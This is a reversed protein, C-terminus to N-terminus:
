CEKLHWGRHGRVHGVRRWRQAGVQEPLEAGRSQRHAVIRGSRHLQIAPYYIWISTRMEEAATGGEPVQHPGVRLLRLRHMRTEAITHVVPWRAHPAIGPADGGVFRVFNRIRRGGREKVRRKVSLGPGRQLSVGDGPLTRPRQRGPAQARGAGLRRQVAAEFGDEEGGAAGDVGDAGGIAEMPAGAATEQAPGAGLGPAELVLDPQLCLPARGQLTLQLLHDDM